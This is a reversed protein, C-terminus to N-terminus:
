RLRRGQGFDVRVVNAARRAEDEAAADVLRFWEEALGRLAAKQEDRQRAYEAVTATDRMEIWRQYRREAVRARVRALTEPRRELKRQRSPQPTTGPDGGCRSKTKAGDGTDVPRRRVEIRQAM